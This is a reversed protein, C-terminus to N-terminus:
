RFAIIFLTTPPYMPLPLVRPLTIRFKIQHSYFPASRLLPPHLKSIAFIPISYNVNSPPPPPTQQSIPLPLSSASASPNTLYNQLSLTGFVQLHATKPLQLNGCPFIHDFGNRIISSLVKQAMNSIPVPRPVCKISTRPHIYISFIYQSRLYHSSLGLSHGPHNNLYVQFLSVYCRNKTTIPRYQLCVPLCNDLHYKTCLMANSEGDLM